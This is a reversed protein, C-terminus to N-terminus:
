NKNNLSSMSLLQSADKFHKSAEQLVTDRILNVYFQGEEGWLRYAIERKLLFQFDMTNDEFNSLETGYGKDIVFEGFTKISEESIEFENAFQRATMAKIKPYQSLIQESFTYIYRESNWAVKIVFDSTSNEKNELWQDPTIGGGGRVERGSFTKFKPLSAYNIERLSDNYVERYYDEISKDNYDRQILRGSPTYYRATTILLVSGDQFPYQTQVLGKGFSTTGMILGRDWDQIAGAVIESASASGQDILVILPIMRHKTNSSSHYERHSQPTKGQTYVIMKKSPLFKESVEVAMQLYGGSNGRLDLVLKQLNESELKDLAEELEESTTASFRSIRIYGIGDELFLSNPVSDVHISERVITFEKPKDWSKREITVNVTTGSKGMLLKPVADQKIGVASQSNIKIIRDGPRFGLRYSPGGEIISMITIKDNIIDFRIGIGSYGEYQQSWKKVQDSTMYNTHPDLDKLMGSIANNILNDIDVDDVYVRQITQMVANFVKMKVYINDVIPALWNSYVFSISITSIFIVSLVPITIKKRIRSIM